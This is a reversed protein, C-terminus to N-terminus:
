QLINKFNNVNKKCSLLHFLLFCIKILHKLIYVQDDVEIETKDTTHIVGDKLNFFQITLKLRNTRNKDIVRILYTSKVLM